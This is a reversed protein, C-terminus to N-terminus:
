RPPADAAAPDALRIRVVIEHPKASEFRGVFHVPKNPRLKSWREFTDRPEILFRLKLPKPLSPVRFIAEDGTETQQAKVFPAEWQVESLSSMLQVIEEEPRADQPEGDKAPRAEASDAVQKLVHLEGWDLVKEHQDNTVITFNARFAPFSTAWQTRDVQSAADDRTRGRAPRARSEGEGGARDTPGAGDTKEEAALTDLKRQLAAIQRVKAQSSKDLKELPITVENVEQNEGTGSTSSIKVWKMDPDHEVYKAKTKHKGSADGWEQMGTLAGYRDALAKIARNKSNKLERYKTAPDAQADATTSGDQPTETVHMERRDGGPPRQAAAGGALISALFGIAVFRVGLSSM